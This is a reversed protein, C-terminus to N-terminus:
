AIGCVTRIKLSSGTTTGTGKSSIKIFRSKIPILHAFHSDAGLVLTHAKLTELGNTDVTGSTLQHYNTGDISFEIKIEASTLSGKTFDIHMVMQNLDAVNEIVQGAVYSTTLIAAPRVNDVKYNM